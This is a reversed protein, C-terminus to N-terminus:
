KFMLKGGIENHALLSTFYNCINGKKENHYIPPSKEHQCCSVFVQVKSTKASMQKKFSESPRVM